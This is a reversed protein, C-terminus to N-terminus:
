SDRGRNPGGDWWTILQELSGERDRERLFEGIRKGSETNLSSLAGHFWKEALPNGRHVIELAQFMLELLDADRAIRTLDDSNPTRTMLKELSSKLEAPLCDLQDAVVDSSISDEKKLYDQALWD